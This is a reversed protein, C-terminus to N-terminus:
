YLGKCKIALLVYVDIDTYEYTNMQLIIYLSALSHSKSLCM